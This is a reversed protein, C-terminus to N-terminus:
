AALGESKQWGDHLQQRTVGAKQLGGGRCVKVSQCASLCVRVLRPLCSGHRLEVRNMWRTKDRRFRVSCMFPANESGKGRYPWEDRWGPVWTGVVFGPSHKTQDPSIIGCDGMGDEARVRYNSRGCRFTLRAQDKKPSSSHQAMCLRANNTSHRITPCNDTHPGSDLLPSPSRSSYNSFVESVEDMVKLKNMLSKLLFM